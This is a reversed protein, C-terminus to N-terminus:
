ISPLGKGPYEPRRYHISSSKSFSIFGKSFYGVGVFRHEKKKKGPSNEKQLRIVTFILVGSLEAGSMEFVASTRRKKWAKYLRSLLVPEDIDMRFTQDIKAGSGDIGTISFEIKKRRKM